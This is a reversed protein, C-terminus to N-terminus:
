DGGAQRIPKVQAIVAQPYQQQIQEAKEGAAFSVPLLYTEPEGQNYEVTLMTLFATSKNYPVAIAQSVSVSQVARAKAAFWRRARAYGLLVGALMVRSQPAWLSEWRGRLNLTPIQIDFPAGVGDTGSVEQ